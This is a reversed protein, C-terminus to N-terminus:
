LSLETYWLFYEQLPQRGQIPLCADGHQHWLSTHWRTFASVDDWRCWRLSVYRSNVIYFVLSQCDNCFQVPNCVTADLILNHWHLLTKHSKNENVEYFTSFRVAYQCKIYIKINIWKRSWLKCFYIYKIYIFSTVVQMPLGCYAFVLLKPHISKFPWVFNQM